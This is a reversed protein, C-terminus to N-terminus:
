RKVRGKVRGSGIVVGGGNGVGGGLGGDGDSGVGVDVGGCDGCGGGGGVICALLCVVLVQVRM